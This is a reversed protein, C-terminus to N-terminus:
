FRRGHTNKGKTDHVKRSDQSKSNRSGGRTDSNKKKKGLNPTFNPKQKQAMLPVEKFLVVIM